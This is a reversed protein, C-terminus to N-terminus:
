LFYINLKYYKINPEGVTDDCNNATLRWHRKM